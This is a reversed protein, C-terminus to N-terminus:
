IHQQLLQPQIMGGPGGHGQMGSMSPPMSPPMSMSMSAPMSTVHPMSTIGGMSTGMSSVPLSFSGSEPPSDEEVSGFENEENELDEDSFNPAPQGDTSTEHTRRHRYLSCTLTVSPYM